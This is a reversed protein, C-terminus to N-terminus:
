PRNYPHLLAPPAARNEPVNWIGCASQVSREIAPLPLNAQAFPLDEVAVSVSVECTVSGFLTKMPPVISVPMNEPRRTDAQTRKWGTNLPVPGEQLLDFGSLFIEKVFLWLKWSSVGRGVEVVTVNWGVVLLSGVVVIRRAVVVLRGAAVVVLPGVVVTGIVSAPLV